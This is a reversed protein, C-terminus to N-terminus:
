LRCQNTDYMSGLWFWGLSPPGRSSRTRMKKKLKNQFKEGRTVFLPSLCCKIVHSFQGVMHLHEYCLRAAHLYVVPHKPSLRMCQQLVLLARAHQFVNCKLYLLCLNRQLVGQLSDRKFM